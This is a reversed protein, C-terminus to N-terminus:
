GKDKKETRTCKFHVVSMIVRGRLYQLACIKVLTGGRAVTRKIYFKYTHMEQQNCLDLFATSLGLTCM